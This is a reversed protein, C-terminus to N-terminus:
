GPYGKLIRFLGPLIPDGTNAIEMLMAQLMYIVMAPFVVIAAPTRRRYDSVRLIASGM